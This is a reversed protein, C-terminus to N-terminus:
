LLKAFNKKTSNPTHLGMLVTDLEKLSYQKPLQFGDLYITPTGTIEPIDTWTCYAEITAEYGETNPVLYRSAWQNYNKKPQAYWDHLAQTLDNGQAQYALLHKTVQQNRESYCTTIILYAQLRPNNHLLEELAEHTKACPGCYPNTVVVLTHAADTAGLHIAQVPPTLAPMATQQRLLQGFLEPNNKLKSLERKTKRLQLSDKWLPKLLLWGGVPLGFGILTLALLAMSPLTFSTSFGYLFSEALLLAQVGLCLACWQKAVQWQYYVSFVTYPLALFSLGALLTLTASLQNTLMGLCLCVGGGAYYLFGLEAWSVWGWLMAAPSTLIANCDTKDNLQCLSSAFSQKGEIHVALLLGSAVLGILKLTLATTTLWTFALANLGAVSILLIAAIAILAPIRLQQWHEQKRKQAYNPEGAAQTPEAILTIGTWKQTFDALSETTYSIGDSYTIADHQQKTIVVFTGGQTRLHVLLPAPLEQLQALTLKFSANEVKFRTLVDSISQLSPYEPHALLLESLSSRTIKHQLSLAKLLMWTADIANNTKSPKQLFTVM